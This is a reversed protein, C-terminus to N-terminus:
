IARIVTNRSCETFGAKEYFPRLKETAALLIHSSGAREAEGRIANLLLKGVGRGRQKEDVEVEFLRACEGLHACHVWAAIGNDKMLWHPQFTKIFFKELPMIERFWQEDFYDTRRLRGEHWELYENGTPSYLHYEGTENDHRAPAAFFIVDHCRYGRDKLFASWDQAKLVPRKLDFRDPKELGKEAHIKRVENEIKAFSDHGTVVCDVSRNYDGGWPVHRNYIHTFSEHRFAAGGRARSYAIESQLAIEDWNEM